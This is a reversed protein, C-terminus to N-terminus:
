SPPWDGVPHGIEWEHGFPDVVRGLKWGHEDSVASAQKAGADVANALVKEPDTIVLLTRSTTGGIHIPDLRTGGANSVWFRAHRVALQAVIENGHAVRHLVIAGFAQVYFDIAAAPDGVWLEPEVSTM